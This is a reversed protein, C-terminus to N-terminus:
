GHHQSDMARLNASLYKERCSSCLLYYPSGSGCEGGFWGDVYAGNSRYGRRGASQGCGPHHRKMHTNFHLTLTNCLECEVMERPETHEEVGQSLSLSHIHSLSLFSVSLSLSLHKRLVEVMWLTDRESAIFDPTLLEEYPEEQYPEDMYGLETEEEASFPHTDAREPWDCASDPVVFM